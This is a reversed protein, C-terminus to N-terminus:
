PVKHKLTQMKGRAFHGVRKILDLAIVNSDFIIRRTESDFPVISFVQTLPGMPTGDKAKYFMEERRTSQLEFSLQEPSPFSSPSLSRWIVSRGIRINISREKLMSESFPLFKKTATTGSSIAYYYITNSTLLNKEGGYIMRNIYVEFDNYTTLPVKKRFEDILTYEENKSYHSNFLSISRDVFFASSGSKELIKQLAKNNINQTNCLISRYYSAFSGSDSAEFISDM